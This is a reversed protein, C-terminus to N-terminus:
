TVQNNEVTSM